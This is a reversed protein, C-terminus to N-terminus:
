SIWTDEGSADADPVDMGRFLTDFLAIDIGPLDWDDDIDTFMPGSLQPDFDLAQNSASAQLAEAPIDYGQQWDNSPREYNNEVRDCCLWDTAAPLINHLEPQSASRSVGGHEFNITGFYPIHIHLAKGGHSLKGDIEGEDGNSSSTSYITGNAANVEVDLLHRLIRTLKPAIADGSSDRAMSEIIESTREMMGRDSPHSHALSNFVSGPHESRSSIHALCMITTAVFALFDCSRCYIHAPNVGRFIIYRSLIERSTTVAIIKSHDYKHEASSRLMYPLHLRALLHHHAFQNMVRITDSVLDSESAFSPTLWWQPPMQAAASQLLKDVERTKSLDNVDADTREVIRGSVLCHLRELRDMPEFMQLDKPIIFCGVLSMQPLGLMLSLYREMQVLRFCIQDPDFAARTAPELFRLSPTNRHLRIMQAAGIARRVAMWARDINGAYNQYMVELMICEVGEVCSILEDNTTVLRTARDVAHAMIDRYSAGLDGLKQIASPVVGQLYTALVLLRRAILVPHIGSPPVKLVERPSPLDNSMLGPYPACVKWLLPISLGVPLSAIIDLDHEGPWATILDRCLEEYKRPTRSPGQSRNIVTTQPKLPRSETSQSSVGKSRPEERDPELSLPHAGPLNEGLANSALQEVLEEVRGLRAEVQNSNESAPPAMLADPVEQSICASGRRRCNNCIAHEASTFICRVKRKKCEWCSQTGKRVRRRKTAPLDPDSPM